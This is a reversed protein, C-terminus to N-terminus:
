FIRRTKNDRKSCTEYIEYVDPTVDVSDQTIVARKRNHVACPDSAFIMFLTLYVKLYRVSGPKYEFSGAMRSYLNLLGIFFRM